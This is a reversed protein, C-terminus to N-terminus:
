SPSSPVLDFRREGDAVPLKGFPALAISAEGDWVKYGFAKLDEAFISSVIAASRRDYESEVLAAGRLKKPDAQAQTLKAATGSWIGAPWLTFAVVRDSIHCGLCPHM